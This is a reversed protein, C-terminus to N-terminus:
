EVTSKWFSWQYGFGVTSEWFSWRYGLKGGWGFEVKGSGGWGVELTVWVM